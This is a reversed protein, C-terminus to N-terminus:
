SIEELVLSFEQSEKATGYFIGKNILTQTADQGKAFSVYSDNVLLNNTADFGYWRDKIFVEVWAHSFDENEMIGAVYRCPIDYQRLMACLIHAYDQCVGQKLSFAESATTKTNTVGKVYSMEDHLGKMLSCVFEYTNETYFKTSFDIMEQSCSTLTTERKFLALLNTDTDYKTYDVEIKAILSAHLNTHKEQKHGYIYFNKFGDKNFSVYDSDVCLKIDLVKQRAGSTPCCKLTFYHNFVPSSFNFDLDYKLYLTKM